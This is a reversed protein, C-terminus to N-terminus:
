RLRQTEYYVETTKTELKLGVTLKGLMQARKIALNLDVNPDYGPDTAVVIHDATCLLNIFWLSNIVAPTAHPVNFTGGTRRLKSM